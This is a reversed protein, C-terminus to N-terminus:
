AMDASTVQVVLARDVLSEQRDRDLLGADAEGLAAHGDAPREDRVALDERRAM